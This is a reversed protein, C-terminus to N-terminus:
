TYQHSEYSLKYEIQPDNRCGIQLVPNQQCLLFSGIPQFLDRRSLHIALREYSQHAVAHSASSRNVDAAM